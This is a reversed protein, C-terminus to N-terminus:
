FFEVVRSKGITFIIHIHLSYYHYNYNNEGTSINKNQKSCFGYLCMKFTSYSQIIDWGCYHTYISYLKEISNVM